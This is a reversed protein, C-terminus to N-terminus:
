RMLLSGYFFFGDGIELGIRMKMQWLVLDGGQFGDGFPAVCNFLRKDDMWDQHSRSEDSALGQNLCVGHWVGGLPRLKRGDTSMVKAMDKVVHGTMRLYQEPCLFRLQNSCYDFLGRNARLWGRGKEGDRLLERSECYKKNYDAWIAYHRSRYLGRVLADRGGGAIWPGYSDLTKSTSNLTDLLCTPIKFRYGLIVGRTDRIQITGLSSPYYAFSHIAAPQETILPFIGKPQRSRDLLTEFLIPSPLSLYGVRDDEWKELLEGVVSELSTGRPMPM